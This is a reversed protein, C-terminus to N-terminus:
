ASARTSSNPRSTASGSWQHRAREAHRCAAALQRPPLRVADGRQEAGVGLEHHHRGRTVLAGVDRDVRDAAGADEHLLHLLRHEVAAGVDRHVRGLVQRRGVGGVPEHQRRDGFPGVRAVHEDPRREVCEGGARADGGARHTPARLQRRQPGVEGEGLQAAVDGGSELPGGVEVRDHDRRGREHPEPELVPGVLEEVRRDHQGLHTLARQRDLAAGVVGVRERADVAISSARTWARRRRRARRGRRARRRSRDETRRARRREVAVRDRDLRQQRRDVAVDHQARRARSVSGTAAPRAAAASSISARRGSGAPLCSAAALRRPTVTYRTPAPGPSGPSRVTRPASSSRRASTTTYSRSADGASSSRAGGSASSIAAPLDGPSTSRVWSCVLWSRTSLPRVASHTTRSFPPSGNTNPRPPSSASASAAAPIGNSTTGPMVLAM